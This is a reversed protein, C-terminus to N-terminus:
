ADRCDVKCQLIGRKEQVHLPQVLKVMKEVLVLPDVFVGGVVNLGFHFSGSRLDPVMVTQPAYM